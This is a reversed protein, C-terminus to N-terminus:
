IFEYGRNPIQEASSQSSGFAYHKCVAQWDVVGLDVDALVRNTDQEFHFWNKLVDKGVGPWKKLAAVTSPRYSLYMLVQETQIYM